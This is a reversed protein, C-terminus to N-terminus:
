ETGGGRQRKISALENLKPSRGEIIKRGDDGFQGWQLLFDALAKRPCCSFLSRSIGRFAGEPDISFDQPGELTVRCRPSRRWIIDPRAIRVPPQREHCEEDGRRLPEAMATLLVFLPM